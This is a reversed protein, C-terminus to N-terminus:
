EGREEGPVDEVESCREPERGSGTEDGVKVDANVAGCCRLSVDGGTLFGEELGDKRM